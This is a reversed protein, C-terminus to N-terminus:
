KDNTPEDSAIFDPIATVGSFPAPEGYLPASDVDEAEMMHVIRELVERIETQETDPLDALRQMFKEHLPLPINEVLARGAETLEILVQRKDEAKRTRTVLGRAEVRDCIGTVTAPSLAVERALAGPTMPGDNRLRRLCVLQPGTLTHRHS